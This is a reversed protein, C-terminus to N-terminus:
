FDEATAKDCAEIVNELPRQFRELADAELTEIFSEVYAKMKQKNQITQSELATRNGFLSVMMATAAESKGLTKAYDAFASKVERLIALAAGNGGRDGEACLGAWDTPISLGDKLTATGAILKNRAAAKTYAALASMVYNAEDSEYVPLGDEEGTIKSTVFPLIDELVPITVVIEGVPQRKKDVTKSISLIVNKM